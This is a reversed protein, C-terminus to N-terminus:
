IDGACYFIGENYAAHLTFCSYQISAYLISFHLDVVGQEFGAPCTAGWYGAEDDWVFAGTTFKYGRGGPENYEALAFVGPDILEDDWQLLQVKYGIVDNWGPVRIVKVEGFAPLQNVHIVTNGDLHIRNVNDYTDIIADNDIVGNVTVTDDDYLLIDGIGTKDTHQLIINAM